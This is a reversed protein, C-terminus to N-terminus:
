VKLLKNMPMKISQMDWFDMQIAGVVLVKDKVERLEKGLAYVIKCPLFIMALEGLKVITAQLHMTQTSQKLRNTLREM